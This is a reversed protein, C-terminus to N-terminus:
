FATVRGGHYSSDEYNGGFKDVYYVNKNKEIFLKDATNFNILLKQTKIEKM